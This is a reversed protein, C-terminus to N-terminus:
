TLKILDERSVYFFQEKPVVNLHHCWESFSNYKNIDKKNIIKSLEELRLGLNFDVLHFYRCLLNFRWLRNVFRVPNDNFDNSTVGWCIFDFRPMWIVFRNITAEILNDFLSTNMSDKNEINEVYYDWIRCINYTENNNDDYKGLSVFSQEEDPQQRIVFSMNKDTMQKYGFSNEIRKSTFENFSPFFTEKFSINNM